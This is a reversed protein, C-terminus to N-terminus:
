ETFDRLIGSNWRQPGSVYTADVNDTPISV